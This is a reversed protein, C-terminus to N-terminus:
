RKLAHLPPVHARTRPLLPPPSAHRKHVQLHDHVWGWGWGVRGEFSSASGVQGARTGTAYCHRHRRPSLPSTLTPLVVGGSYDSAGPDAPDSGAGSGSNAHNPSIPASPCPPPQPPAARPVAPGNQPSPSANSPMPSVPAHANSRFMFFICHPSTITVFTRFLTPPLPHGLANIFLRIFTLPVTPPCPSSTPCGTGRCLEDGGGSGSSGGITAAEAGTSTADQAGGFTSPQTADSSNHFSLFVGIGIGGAALLVFIIGVVWLIHSHQSRKGQMKELWSSKEANPLQQQVASANFRRWFVDTKDLEDDSNHSESAASLSSGPASPAQMLAPTVSQMPTYQYNDAMTAPGPITTTTPRALLSASFRHNDTQRKHARKHRIHSTLGPPNGSSCQNHRTHPSIPVCASVSSSESGGDCAGEVGGGFRERFEAAGYGKDGSFNGFSHYFDPGYTTCYIVGTTPGLQGATTTTQSSSAM